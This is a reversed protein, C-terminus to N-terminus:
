LLRRTHRSKCGQEGRTGETGDRHRKKLGLRAGMMVVAAVARWKRKANFAKLRNITGSLHQVPLVVSQTIWQLCVTCYLWATSGLLACAFM